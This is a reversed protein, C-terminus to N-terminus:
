ESGGYLFMSNPTSNTITSFIWRDTNFVVVQKTKPDDFKTDLVVYTDTINKRHRWTCTMAAADSRYLWMDQNKLFLLIMLNMSSAPCPPCARDQPCDKAKCQEVLTITAFAVIYFTKTRGIVACTWKPNYYLLRESVSNKSGEQLVMSKQTANAGTSFKWTGTSFHVAKGGSKYNEQLVVHTHNIYKRHRWTCKSAHDTSSYDWMNENIIFLLQLLNISALPCPPCRRHKTCDNANCKRVM